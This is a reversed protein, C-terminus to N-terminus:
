HNWATKLFNDQNSIQINFSIKISAKSTTLILPFQHQILTTHQIIIRNTYNEHIETVFLEHHHHVHHVHTSAKPKWYGSSTQDAKATNECSKQTQRGHVLLVMGHINIFRLTENTLASWKFICTTRNRAIVNELKGQQMKEMGSTCTWISTEHM